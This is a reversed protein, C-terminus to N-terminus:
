VAVAAEHQRPKYESLPISRWLHRNYYRAVDKLKQKTWGFKEIVVLDDRSFATFKMMPQCYPEGGWEIVKRARDLCQEVPENGIMVYVQKRRPAEDRLLAMMQKVHEEEAVVDFGFRWPGKFRGKWRSYTEDSFTRPEFGSNCDVLATETESYRRLIHEQFKSPLASINNDCLIPAPSFEWDLTFKMGELQPVICFYCPKPNEETGMGPCGRSSFTMRYQGRQREFRSDLGIKCSLGTQREWWGQLRFLGPGGAEVDASAKYRLAIEAALPAHWSFIVSLWVKTAEGGFLGPDGDFYEVEGGTEKRWEYLKRAGLSYHPASCNIVIERPTVFRRLSGGCLPCVRARDRQDVFDCQSCSKMHDSMETTILSKKEM